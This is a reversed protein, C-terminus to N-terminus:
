FKYDASLLLNRGLIGQFINLKPVCRPTLVFGYTKSYATESTFAANGSSTGIATANVVDSVFTATNIGAAACNKARTGPASGQGV